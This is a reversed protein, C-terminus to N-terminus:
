LSVEKKLVKKYIIMVMYGACAIVFPWAPMLYRNDAVMLVVSHIIIAYAPIICILLALYNSRIGKWLLFVIGIIGSILLFLYYFHYFYKMFKGLGPIQGRKFYEENNEFLFKRLLIIRAKVYYVFPKEKKISVKYTDFRNDIDNQLAAAAPSVPKLPTYLIAFARNWDKNTSRYFSDVAPKQMAMFSRVKSRLLYLSDKNFKSTYIYDPLSDYEKVDPEGPFLLGGFWSLASHPDPIDAAGGWSQVFQLMHSMYSYEIYPYYFGGLPIFKDHVKYNRVVWAGETIIFSLSFIFFPKIFKKKSKIIYALFVLGYLFLILVFVTRLFFAWALFFGSFFLYKAQNKKFYLAFYWTGFILFASCFSETMLCIDYYNSYTSILFLYFVLYFITDTKAILRSLLALCYVSLSTVILQAIVITNYATNYSFLVRLFYYIIGYGPMRRDPTYRGSALLNEIPDTYSPTDGIFGFSLLHPDSRHGFFLL